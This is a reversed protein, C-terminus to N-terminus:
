CPSSRPAPPAPAGSNLSCASAFPATQNLHPAPVPRGPASLQPLPTPLSVSAQQVLTTNTTQTAPVTAPSLAAPLVPTPPRPPKAAPDAPPQPTPPPKAATPRPVPAALQVGAASQLNALNIATAAIARDLAALDRQILAIGDSVGDQLTLSIGIEYAEIM